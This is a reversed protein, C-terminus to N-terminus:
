QPFIINLPTKLLSFWVWVQLLFIAVTEGKVNAALPKALSIKYPWFPKERFFLITGFVAGPILLLGVLRALPLMGHEALGTQAMGAASSLVFTGLYVGIISWTNQFGLHRMRLVNIKLIQYLFWLGLAVMTLGLIFMLGITVPNRGMFMFPISCLVVAITFLLPVLVTRLALRQYTTADLAKGSWPLGHLTKFISPIINM